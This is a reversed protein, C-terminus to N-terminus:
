GVHRSLPQAQVAPLADVTRLRRGSYAAWLLARLLPTGSLITAEFRARYSM